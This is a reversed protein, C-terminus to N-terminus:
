DSTGDDLTPATHLANIAETVFLVCIVIFAVHELSMPAEELRFRQASKEAPVL